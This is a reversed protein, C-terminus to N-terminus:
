QDVLSFSYSTKQYYEEDPNVICSPFSPFHVSDPFNHAELCFGEHRGYSQNNGKKVDLFNGTYFQVGNETSRVDLKIGNSPNKVSAILKFDNRKDSSDAENVVFFNDYGEAPWEGNSKIRSELQVYERFDYKTNEVTNVRGTVTVDSPNFDLYKSANIKAWHNYCKTNTDHGALNFYAHNTLIIPTPQDTIAKYEMVIENRDSELRYVLELWVEGPFGGEGDPSVYTFKVGNEVISSIWNKKSLGTSGSHLSHEGNNKELTYQTGNLTFQGNAIRNSVRGVVPGLYPNSDAEYEQITDFGLIVNTSKNDKDNLQVSQITAGYSILAVTFNSESNTLTYKKVLQGDKLRGFNEEEVQINSM